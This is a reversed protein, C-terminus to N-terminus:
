KYCIDDFQEIEKKSINVFVSMEALNHIHSM